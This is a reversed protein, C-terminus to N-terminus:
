QDGLSRELADQARGAEILQIISMKARIEVMRSDIADPSPAYLFTVTRRRRNSFNQGSGHVVLADHFIVDGPKVDQHRVPFGELRKRGIAYTKAGIVDHQISSRHSGLYYYVAGNDITAEDLTVIVNIGKKDKLCNYEDDQHPSMRCGVYAPKLFSQSAVMYGPAGFMEAIVSEIRTKKILDLFRFKKHSHLCLIQQIEGANQVLEFIPNKLNPVEDRIFRELEEALQQVIDLPVLNRLCLVGDEQFRNLEDQGFPVEEV